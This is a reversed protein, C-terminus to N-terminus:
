KKAQFLMELGNEMAYFVVMLVFFGTAITLDSGAEAVFMALMLINFIPISMLKKIPEPIVDYLGLTDSALALPLLLKWLQSAQFQNVFNM